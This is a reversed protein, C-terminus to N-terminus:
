VGPPVRARRRRLLGLGGAALLALAAPEPVLWAFTSEALQHNDAEDFYAPLNPQKTFLDGDAILVVRGQGLPGAALMPMAGYWAYATLDGPDITSSYRFYIQGVGVVSPHTAVSTSYVDNPPFKALGVTASFLDAVQQINAMGASGSIDSLVLMGGGGRVYGDIANLEAGTFAATSCSGRALVLIDYDSLNVADLAASGETVNYGLPSLHDVLVGYVGTPQYNDTVGHSIDWYVEAATVVHSFGAPYLACVAILVIGARRARNNRGAGRTRRLVAVAGLTLLSLTIRMM